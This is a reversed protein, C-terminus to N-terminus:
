KQGLLEVEIFKHQENRMFLLLGLSIVAANKLFILLRSVFKINVLLPSTLYFITCEHIAYYASMLFSSAVPKSYDQLDQFPVFPLHLVMSM